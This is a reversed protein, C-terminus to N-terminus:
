SLLFAGRAPGRVPPGNFPDRTLAEQQRTPQGPEEVHTGGDRRTVSCSDRTRPAEVPQRAVDRLYRFRGYATTPRVQRYATGNKFQHHGKLEGLFSLELRPPHTPGTIAQPVMAPSGKWAAVQLPRVGSPSCPRDVGHLGCLPGLSRSKRISMRVRPLLKEMAAPLDNECVALHM